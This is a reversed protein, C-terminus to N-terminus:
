AAGCSACRHRGLRRRTLLMTSEDGSPVNLRYSLFGLGQAQHRASSRGTGGAAQKGSTLRLRGGAPNVRRIEQWSDWKDKADGQLAQVFTSGHTGDGIMTTGGAPCTAPAVPGSSLRGAVSSGPKGMAGDAIADHMFEGGLTQWAAPNTQWSPGPVALWVGYATKGNSLRDGPAAHKSARHTIGCARQVFGPVSLRGRPELDDRICLSLRDAGARHEGCLLVSERARTRSCRTRRSDMIGPWWIRPSGPREQRQRTALEAGGHGRRPGTAGRM